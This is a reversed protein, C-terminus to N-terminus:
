PLFNSAWAPACACLLFAGKPAPDPPTAPFTGAAIAMPQISLHRPQELPSIVDMRGQGGM